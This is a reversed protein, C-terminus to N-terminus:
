GVHQSGRVGPRSRRFDFVAVGRKPLEPFELDFFKDLGRITISVRSLATRPSRGSYTDRMGELIRLIPEKMDEIEKESSLRDIILTGPTGQLELQWRLGFQRFAVKAGPLQQLAAEVFGRLQDSTFQGSQVVLRVFSDVPVDVDKGSKIDALWAVERPDADTNRM